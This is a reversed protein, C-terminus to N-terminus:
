AFYEPRNRRADAETRFRAIWVGRVGDPCRTVNPPTPTDYMLVDGPGFSVTSGDFEVTGGGELVICACEWGDEASLEMSGRFEWYGVDVLSDRSRWLASWRNDMSGRDIHQDDPPRAQLAAWTPAGGELVFIAPRPPEGATADTLAHATM